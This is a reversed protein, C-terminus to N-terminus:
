PMWIPPMLLRWRLQEQNKRRKWGSFNTPKQCYPGSKSVTKNCLIGETTDRSTTKFYMKTSKMQEATKMKKQKLKQVFKQIFYYRKWRMVVEKM